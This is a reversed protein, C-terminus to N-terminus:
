GLIAEVPGKVDQYSYKLEKETEDGHNFLYEIDEVTLEHVDHATEKSLVGLANTLQSITVQAANGFIQPPQHIEGCPPLSSPAPFTFICDNEESV